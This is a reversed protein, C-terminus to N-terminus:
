APRCAGALQAAAQCHTRGTGTILGFLLGFLLVALGAYFVANDPFVCFGLATLLGLDCAAAAPLGRRDPRRSRSSRATRTTCSRM